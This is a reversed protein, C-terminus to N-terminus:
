GTPERGFEGECSQLNDAKTEGDIAGGIATTERTSDSEPTRNVQTADTWTQIGFKGQDCTEIFGVDRGDVNVRGTDCGKGDWDRGQKLFAMVHLADGSKLNNVVRYDPFGHITM